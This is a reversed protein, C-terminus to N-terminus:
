EGVDAARVRQLVEDPRRLAPRDRSEELRAGVVKVVRVPAPAEGVLCQRLRQMVSTVPVLEDEPLAAVVHDVAAGQQWLGQAPQPRGM